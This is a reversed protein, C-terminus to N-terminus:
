QKPNPTPLLPNPSPRRKIQTNFFLRRVQFQNAWVMLKDLMKVKGDQKTKPRAFLAEASSFLVTCETYM